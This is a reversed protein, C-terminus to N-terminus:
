GGLEAIEIVSPARRWTSPDAADVVPAGTSGDTLDVVTATMTCPDSVGALTAWLVKGYGAADQSAIFPGVGVALHSGDETVAVTLPELPDGEPDVLHPEFGAIPGCIELESAGADRAVFVGRHGAPSAAGSVFVWTAEAGPLAVVNGLQWDGMTDLPTLSRLGCAGDFHWLESPQLLDLPTPGDVVLYGGAGDPALHRVRRNSPNGPVACVSGTITAAADAPSLDELGGVDLVAVAENGDCAVAVVDDAIRVVQGAANCAGGSLAGLDAVGVGATPSQADLVLLKGANTWTDETAFLDNAFTGVLLRDGVTSLYIPELEQLPTEIVGALPGDAYWESAAVRSGAARDEFFPLPFSFLTGEDRSPFHGAIVHLFGGARALGFPEDLREDGNDGPECGDCVNPKLDVDLAGRYVAGGPDGPSFVEVRDDLTQAVLLLRCTAGDACGLIEGGGDDDPAGGTTDEGATGGTGTGSGDADDGACGALLTALVVRALDQRRM